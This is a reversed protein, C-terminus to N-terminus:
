GRNPSSEQLLQDMSSFNLGDPVVLYPMGARRAAEGDREDRDGIVLCQDPSLNWRRCIYLLGAPDPKLRDIGPDTSSCSLLHDLGLAKLKAEPPYDSLVAAMIQQKSLLSLLNDVFPYRCGALHPLPAQHMWREVVREVEASSCNCKRATVAYQQLAVGGEGAEALEERLRRFRVLLILEKILWPRFLYFGILKRRMTSRLQKQNYLTGDLDLIVGRIKRLFPPIAEAPSTATM